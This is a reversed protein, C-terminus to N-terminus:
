LLDNLYQEISIVFELLLCITQVSILIYAFSSKSFFMSDFDRSLQNM